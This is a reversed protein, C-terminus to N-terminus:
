RRESGAPPTGLWFAADPGPSDPETSIFGGRWLAAHLPANDAGALCLTNGARRAARHAALLLQIVSLDVEIAASCDVTVMAYQELAATLRAHVSAVGRLTL